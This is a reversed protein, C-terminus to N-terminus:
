ERPGGHHVHGPLYHDLRSPLIYYIPVLAYIVLSIYPHWLSALIAMVYLAPALLMQFRALRQLDAPLIEGGMVLKHRLAYEWNAYLAIGAIILNLGYIGIALKLHSYHGLLAASFPIFSIFLYFFINIWLSPRNSRVIYHFQLRHGTWFIGLIVFSLFFSVFNPWLGQLASWLARSNVAGTLQPVVLNLVLLTMVIAFIGDGLTEIRNTDLDRQSNYEFNPNQEPM